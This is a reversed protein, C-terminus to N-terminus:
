AALPRGGSYIYHKGDKTNKVVVFGAENLGKTAARLTAYTMRVGPLYHPQPVGATPHPAEVCWNGSQSHRLTVYRM